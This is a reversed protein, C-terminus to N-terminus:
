EEILDHHWLLALARSFRQGVKTDWGVSNPISVSVWEDATLMELHDFEPVFIQTTTPPAQFYAETTAPPFL